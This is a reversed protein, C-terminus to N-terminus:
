VTRRRLGEPTVELYELRDPRWDALVVRERRRGDVDLSEEGPRHTHGHILREVGSGALAARVAQPNVDMIEVSKARKDQDSRGRVGGAIRERWARPLTLFITQAVRNHAFRRWRQYAVDDTCFLDGHSLLTAVGYLDIRLPDALLHAGTLGEFDSGLLFDRNGRMVGVRVGAQTLAALRGIEPAYAQLGLDDGIWVEFLDGLIYVTEASRAPGELFRQFAERLPSPEAPLHLDSLLLTRAPM